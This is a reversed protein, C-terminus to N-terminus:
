RALEGFRDARRARRTERALLVCQGHINRGYRDRVPEPEASLDFARRVESSALLQFARQHLHSAHRAAASDFGERASDLQRLLTHRCELREPTLGDALALAPVQWGAQSPDGQIVFPDHLRGLWGGHQGPAQGGPAASHEVQWPMTVFSPLVEPAPRLYAMMSGLHPTDHESPPEADSKNVPPLHGTLTTHGSSLHAPDDHHLSRIVALKDTVRALM